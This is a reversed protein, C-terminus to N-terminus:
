GYPRGYREIQRALEMRSTVGCKRFINRLHTDVTRPSIYLEEAIERDRSGELVKEVIEVERRSLGFTDIFPRSVAPSSGGQSSRGISTILSVILIINAVTYGAAFIFGDRIEYGQEIFVQVVSYDLLQAAPLVFLVLALGRLLTRWPRSVTARSDRLFIVGVTVTLVVLLLQIAIMLGTANKGSFPGNIVLTIFLVVGVAPSIIWRLYRKENEFRSFVFFQAAGVAYGWAMTNLIRYGIVSRPMDQIRLYVGTFSSVGMLLFASIIVAVPVTVVPNFRKLLLFASLLAAGTVLSLLSFIIWLQDIM